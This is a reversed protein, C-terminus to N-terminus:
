LPAQGVGLEGHQQGEVIVPNLVTGCDDVAVHHVITAREQKPTLKSLQLTPVSRSRRVRNISSMTPLFSAVPKLKNHSIQGRASLQPCEQSTSVELPVISCSMQSMPKSNSPPLSRAHEIVADRAGVVASGGLQLSRSGGTGGGRPLLDTDGDIHTIRDIPIGTAASVIM